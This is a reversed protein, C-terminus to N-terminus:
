SCEQLITQTGQRYANGTTTNVGATNEMRKQRMNGSESFLKRLFALYHPDNWKAQSPTAVIYKAYSPNRHYAVKYPLGVIPDGYRPNGKRVVGSPMDNRNHGCWECFHATDSVTRYISCRACYGREGFFRVCCNGIFLETDNVHNRIWCLEKIGTKGCPCVQPEEAVQRDGVIWEDRMTEVDEKEESLEFLAPVIKM